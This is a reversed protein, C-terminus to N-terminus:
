LGFERKVSLVVGEVKGLIGGRVCRRWVEELEDGTESAVRMEDVVIVDWDGLVGEVNALVRELGASGGVADRHGRVTQLIMTLHHPVAICTYEMLVSETPTPTTPGLIYLVEQVASTSYGLSELVRPPVAALSPQTYQGAAAAPNYLLSQRPTGRRIQSATPDQLQSASVSLISARSTPQRALLDQVSTQWNQLHQLSSEPHVTQRISPPRSTPPRPSTSPPQPIQSPPTLTQTPPRPSIPQTRPRPSPPQPLPEIPPGTATPPRSPPKNQDTATPPRSPSRSEPNYLIEHVQHPPPAWVLGPPPPAPQYPIYSSAESYRSNSSLNLQSEWNRSNTSLNLQSGSDEDDHEDHINREDDTENHHLKGQYRHDVDVQDPTSSMRSLLFTWRQFLEPTPARLVYEREITVLIFTRAAKSWPDTPPHPVLTRISLISETPIIWKPLHYYRTIIASGVDDNEYSAILPNTLAPM